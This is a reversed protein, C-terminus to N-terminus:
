CWRLCSYYNDTDASWSNCSSPCAVCSYDYCAQNYVPCQNTSGAWNASDCSSGAYILGYGGPYYVVFLLVLVIAAILVISFLVSSAANLCRAQSTQQPKCVMCYGAMWIIPICWGFAFVVASCVQRAVVCLCPCTAFLTGRTSRAM